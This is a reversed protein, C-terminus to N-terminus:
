LNFQMKRVTTLGNSCNTPGKEPGWCKAISKVVCPAVASAAWWPLLADHSLCNLFPFLFPSPLFLICHEQSTIVGLRSSSMLRWSGQLLFWNIVDLQFIETDTMNVQFVWTLHETLVPFNQKSFHFNEAFTSKEHDAMSPFFVLGLFTRWWTKM